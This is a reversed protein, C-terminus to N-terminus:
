TFNKGFMTYSFQIVVSVFIIYDNLSNTWNFYLSTLYFSQIFLFFIVTSKHLVNKVKKRFRFLKESEFKNFVTLFLCNILFFVFKSFNM